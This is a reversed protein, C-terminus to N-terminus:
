RERGLEKGVRKAQELGVGPFEALVAGAVPLKWSFVGPAKEIRELGYQAWRTHDSQSVFLDLDNVPRGLDIGNLAIAASGFVIVKDSETPFDKLFSKILEAARAQNAVITM